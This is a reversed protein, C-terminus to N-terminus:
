TTMLRQAISTSSWFGVPRGYLKLKELEMAEGPNSLLTNPKMVDFPLYHYPPLPDLTQLRASPLDPGRRPVLLFVSSSTDLFTCWLSARATIPHEDAAKILRQVAALSMWFYPSAAADYHPHIDLPIEVPKQSQLHRCEDFGLVFYKHGLRDLAQGLALASTHCVQKYITSAHVVHYSLELKEPDNAHELMPVRNSHAAGLASHLGGSTLTDSLIQRALDAVATFAQHRQSLQPCRPDDLGFHM